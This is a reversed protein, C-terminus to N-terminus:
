SPKRMTSTQQLIATLMSSSKNSLELHDISKSIYEMFIKLSPPFYDSNKVALFIEGKIPPTIPVTKLDPFSYISADSAVSAALVAIGMEETVLDLITKVMSCHMIVNPEFGASQCADHVDIFYGSNTPPTILNEHQLDNIEISNRDAFPHNKSTVVVMHDTEIPIFHFSSDKTGRQVFAANIKTNYLLELLRNYQGEQLTLTLRPFSKKFSSLLKPIRYHGIIPIIGVSINLKEYSKHEHICRKADTVLSMIQQAHSLFNEGAETLEIDRTTRNFLSIGLENELKGIQHSLSSQSSNIEEAARTFGKYKAVALVYELQHMKM